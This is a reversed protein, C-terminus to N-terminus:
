PVLSVNKARALFTFNKSVTRVTGEIKKPSDVVLNIQITQFQDKFTGGPKANLGQVSFTSVWDLLPEGSASAGNIPTSSALDCGIIPNNCKRWERLLRKRPTGSSVDALYYRVLARYLTGTSDYDDYVFSIDGPNASSIVIAQTAPMPNPDAYDKFGAMRIDAQMMDITRLAGRDVETQAMLTQQQQAFFAYAAYTGTLVVSTVAMAVLLEVLTYGLASNSM